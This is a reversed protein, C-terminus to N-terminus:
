VLYLLLLKKHCVVVDCVKDNRMVRVKYSYSYEKLHTSEAESKRPRRNQIPLVNILGSLYASQKNKAALLNFDQLLKSREKSTIVEFCKLRKCNCPEGEVHSMSRITKNADAISGRKQRKKSPGASSGEDESM